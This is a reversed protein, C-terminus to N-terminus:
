PTEPPTLSYLKRGGEKRTSILNKKEGFRLMRDLESKPMGCRKSLDGRSYEIESNIFINELDRLLDDDHESNDVMVEDECVFNIRFSLFPDVGEENKTNKLATDWLWSVYGTWSGTWGVGILKVADESIHLQQILEDFERDISAKRMESLLEIGKIKKLEATTLPEFGKFPSDTLSTSVRRLNTPRKIRYLHMAVITRILSPIDVISDDSRIEDIQISLGTIRRLRKLISWLEKDLIARAVEQEYKGSVVSYLRSDIREKSEGKWYESLDNHAPLDKHTGEMGLIAEINATSELNKIRTFPAKFLERIRCPGLTIDGRLDSSHYDIGLSVLIRVAELSKALSDRSATGKMSHKGSWYLLCDVIDTEIYSASISKDMAEAIWQDVPLWDTFITLHQM